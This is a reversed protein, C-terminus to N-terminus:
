YIQPMYLSSYISLEFNRIGCIFIHCVVKRYTSYHSSLRDLCNTTSGLYTEPMDSSKTSWTYILAQNSYMTGIRKVDSYSSITYSSDRLNIEKPSLYNSSFDTLEPLPSLLDLGYKTLIAKVSRGESHTM